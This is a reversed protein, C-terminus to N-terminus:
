PADLYDEYSDETGVDYWKDHVTHPKIHNHNLFDLFNVQQNDDFRSLKLFGAACWHGDANLPDRPKWTEDSPDWYDLHPSSSSVVSMSNAPADMVQRSWAQPDEYVNDCYLFVTQLCSPSCTLWADTMAGLVGPRRQEIFNISGVSYGRTKLAKKLISARNQSAVVMHIKVFAQCKLLQAVEISSEIVLGGRKMPLLAKNPMRTAQGGALIVVSLM